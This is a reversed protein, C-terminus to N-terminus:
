MKCAFVCFGDHECTLWPRRQRLGWGMSMLAAADARELARRAAQEFGVAKREETGLSKMWEDKKTRLESEKDLIDAVDGGLGLVYLVYLYLQARRGFLTTQKMLEANQKRADLTWLRMPSFTGQGNIHVYSEFERMLQAAVPKGSAFSPMKPPLLLRDPATRPGDPAEDVDPREATSVAPPLHSDDEMYQLSQAVYGRSALQENRHDLRDSLDDPDITRLAAAAARASRDAEVKLDTAIMTNARNRTDLIADVAHTWKTPGAAALVNTTGACVEVREGHV